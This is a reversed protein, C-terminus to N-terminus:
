IETLSDIVRWSIQAKRGTLLLDGKYISGVALSGYPGDYQICSGATLKDMEQKTNVGEIGAIQLVREAGASTAFELGFLALSNGFVFLSCGSDRAFTDKSLVIRGIQVQIQPILTESVARSFGRLLAGTWSRRRRGSLIEAGAFTESVITYVKEGLRSSDTSLFESQNRGNSTLLAEGIFPGYSDSSGLVVFRKSGAGLVAFRHRTSILPGPESTQMSVDYKVREQSVCGVLCLIFILSCTAGTLKRRIVM